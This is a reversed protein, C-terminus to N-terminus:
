FPLRRRRLSVMRPVLDLVLETVGVNGQPQSPTCVEKCDYQTVLRSYIDRLLLLPPSSWSSSDRLHREQSFAGVWLFDM